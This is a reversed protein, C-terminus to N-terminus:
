TENLPEQYIVVPDKNHQMEAYLVKSTQLGGCTSLWLTIKKFILVMKM